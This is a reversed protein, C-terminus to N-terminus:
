RNKRRIIWLTLCLPFVKRRAASSLNQRELYGNNLVDPLGPRIGEKSSPMALTICTLVYFTSGPVPDCSTFASPDLKSNELIYDSLAIEGHEYKM